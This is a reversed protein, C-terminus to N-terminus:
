DENYSRANPHLEPDLEFQRYVCIGRDPFRHPYPLMIIEEMLIVEKSLQDSMIALMLKVDDVQQDTPTSYFYVILNIKRAERVYEIAIRRMNTHILCLSAQNFALVLDGKTIEPGPTDEIFRKFNLNDKNIRYSAKLRDYEQSPEYRRYVCVGKDPLMCPYPLIILEEKFDTGFPFDSGMETTIAGMFDDDLDEQSPPTNYYFRTLILRQEELYEVSIKRMEPKIECLLARNTSLILKQKTVQEPIKEMIGGYNM